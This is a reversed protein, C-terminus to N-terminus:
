CASKYVAALEATLQQIGVQVDSVSMDDGRGQLDAMLVRTHQHVVVGAALAPVQNQQVMQIYKAM